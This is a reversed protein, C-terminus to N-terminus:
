RPAGAARGDRVAVLEAEGEFLNGSEDTLSIQVKM